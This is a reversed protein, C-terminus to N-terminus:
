IYKIWKRGGMIRKYDEEKIYFGYETIINKKTYDLEVRYWKGTIKKMEELYAENITLILNTNFMGLSFMESENYPTFSFQKELRFVEVFM